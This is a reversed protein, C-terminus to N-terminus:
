RGAEADVATVPQDQRRRMSSHVIMGCLAVCYLAIPAALWVLPDRQVMTNGAIMRAPIQDVLIAIWFAHLLLNIVLGRIAAAKRGSMMATFRTTLVLWLVLGMMPYMGPHPVPNALVIWTLLATAAMHTVLVAAVLGHSMLRATKQIRIADALVQERLADTAERVDAQIEESIM